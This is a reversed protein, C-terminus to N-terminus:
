PMPQTTTDTAGGECGPGIAIAAGGKGRRKRERSRAGSNAKNKRINGNVTGCGHAPSTPQKHHRPHQYSTSHYPSIRVHLSPLADHANQSLGTHSLRHDRTKHIPPIDVAPLPPSFSSRLPTQTSTAPLGRSKADGDGHLISWASFSSFPSHLSAQISQTRLGRTKADRHGALIRPRFRPCSAHHSATRLRRTTADDRGLPSATCHEPWASRTHAAHAVKHKM